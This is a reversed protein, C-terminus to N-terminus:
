DFVNSFSLQLNDVQQSGHLLGELLNTFTDGQDAKKVWPILKTATATLGQIDTLSNWPDGGSTGLEPILHELIKKIIEIVTVAGFKEKAQLILDALLKFFTEICEFYPELCEPIGEGVYPSVRWEAAAFGIAAVLVVFILSRM